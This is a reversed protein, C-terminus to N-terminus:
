LCMSVIHFVEQKEVAVIIVRIHRLTVKYM